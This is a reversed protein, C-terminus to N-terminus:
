EDDGGDIDDNIEPVTPLLIFHTGYGQNRLSLPETDPSRGGAQEMLVADLKEPDTQVRELVAILDAYRRKGIDSRLDEINRRVQKVLTEIDTKDPLTGGDLEKIPVDIKNCTWDPSNLCDGISM